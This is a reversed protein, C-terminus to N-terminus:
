DKVDTQIVHIHFSGQSTTYSTYWINKLGNLPDFRYDENAAERKLQEIVKNGLYQIQAQEKTIHKIWEQISAGLDRAQVQSCYTGGRFDAIFTFTLLPKPQM